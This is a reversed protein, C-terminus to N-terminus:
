KDIFIKLYGTKANLIDGGPAAVIILYYEGTLLNPPLPCNEKLEARANAPISSYSKSSLLRDSFHWVVDTSLYIHLDIRRTPEEFINRLRINLQATDGARYISKDRSAEEVLAFFVKPAAYREVETLSLSEDWAIKGDKRVFGKDFPSLSSSENGNSAMVAYFYDRGREASYDCFWTSAQWSRTIEKLSAGESSTARFVRYYTAGESAEWRILVFKDYTGDSAYVQSPALVAKSVQSSIMAQQQALLLFPLIWLVNLLLVRM